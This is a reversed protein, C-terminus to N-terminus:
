LIVSVSSKDAIHLLVVPRDTRVLRQHHLWLGFPSTIDGHELVGEAFVSTPKERFYTSPTKSHEPTPDTHSNGNRHHDLLLM